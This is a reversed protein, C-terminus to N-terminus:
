LLASMVDHHMRTINVLLSIERCKLIRSAPVHRRCGPGKHSGLSRRTAVKRCVSRFSGLRCAPPSSGDESQERRIRALALNKKRDKEQRRMMTQGLALLTDPRRDILRCLWAATSRGDAGLYSDGNVQPWLRATLRVSSPTDSDFAISLVLM